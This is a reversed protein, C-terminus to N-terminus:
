ESLIELDDTDISDEEDKILSASDSLSESVFGDSDESQQHQQDIVSSDEMHSYTFSPLKSETQFTSAPVFSDAPQAVSNESDQVTQVNSADLESTVSTFDSADTAEAVDPANSAGVADAVEAAPADAVDAVSSVASVPGSSDVFDVSVASSDATDHVDSSEFVVSLPSDDTVDAVHETEEQNLASQVPGTEHNSEDTASTQTESIQTTTGIQTSIQTTDVQSNDIAASPANTASYPPEIPSIDTIKKTEVECNANVDIFSSSTNQSNKMRATDSIEDNVFDSHEQEIVITPKETSVSSKSISRVPEPVTETPQFKVVSNHDEPYLRNRAQEREEKTLKPKQKKAAATAPRENEKNQKIMNKRVAESKAFQEMNTLRQTLEKVEELLANRTRLYKKNLILLDAARPNCRPLKRRKVSTMANKRSFEQDAMVIDDDTSQTNAEPDSEKITDLSAITSLDSSFHRVSINAYISGINGNFETQLPLEVTFTSSKGNNKVADVLLPSIDFATAARQNESNMFIYLPMRHFSSFCSVRTIFKAGFNVDNRVVGSRLNCKGGPIPDMDNLQIEVAYELSVTGTAEIASVFVSCDFIQQNLAM